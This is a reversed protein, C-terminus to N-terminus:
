APVPLQDPEWHGRPVRPIRPVAVDAIKEKASFRWGFWITSEAEWWDLPTGYGAEKLVQLAGMRELWRPESPAPQRWFSLAGIATMHAGAFRSAMQRWVGRDGFLGPADLLFDAEALRDEIVFLEASEPELVWAARDHWECLGPPLVARMREVYASSGDVFTSTWIGGNPRGLPDDEVPSVTEPGPELGAGFWDVWLQPGLALPM